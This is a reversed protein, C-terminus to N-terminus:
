KAGERESLGDGDIIHERIDVSLLPFAQWGPHHITSVVGVHLSAHITYTGTYLICVYPYAVCVHVHPYKFQYVFMYVCTYMYVEVGVGAYVCMYM